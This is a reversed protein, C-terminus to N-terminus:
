QPWARSPKASREPLGQVTLPEGTEVTGTVAPVEGDLIQVSGNGGDWAVSADLPANLPM